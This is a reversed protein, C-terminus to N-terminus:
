GEVGYIVASGPELEIVQVDGDDILEHMYNKDASPTDECYKEWRALLGQAAESSTAGLGIFEFHGTDVIMVIMTMLDGELGEL